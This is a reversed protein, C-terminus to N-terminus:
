PNIWDDPKDEAPGFFVEQRTRNDTPLGSPPSSEASPYRGLPGRGAQDSAGDTQDANKSHADTSQQELLGTLYDDGNWRESSGVINTYQQYPDVDNDFKEAEDNFDNEPTSSEAQEADSEIREGSVSGGVPVNTINYVVRREVSAEKWRQEAKAFAIQQDLLEVELGTAEQELAQVQAHLEGVTKRLTALEANRAAHAQEGIRRSDTVAAIVPASAVVPTPATPCEAALTVPTKQGAIQSTAGTTVRDAQVLLDVEVQQDAEYGMWAAGSVATLIAVGTLGSLVYTRSFSPSSQFLRQWRRAFRLRLIALRAASLRYM